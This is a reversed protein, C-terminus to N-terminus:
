RRPRRVIRVVHPQREDDEEAVRDGSNDRERQRTLESKPCM